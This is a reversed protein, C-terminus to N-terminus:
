AEHHVQVPPSGSQDTTPFTVEIRTHSGPHRHTTRLVVDGDTSTVTRRVVLVADGPEIGLRADRDTALEATVLQDTHGIECGKTALLRAPPLQEVDRRTIIAAYPGAILVETLDIPIGGAATLRVVRLVPEDGLRNPAPPPPITEFTLTETALIAAVGGAPTTGIRFWGIEGTRVAAALRWGHGRGAVLLGEDRLETLARRITIRSAGFEDGLQQETGLAGDVRLDGRAIRNRLQTAIQEWRPTMPM